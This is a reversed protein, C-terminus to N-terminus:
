FRFTCSFIIGPIFLAMFGLLFLVFMLISLFLYPAWFKVGWKWATTTSMTEGDIKAAMYCIVGVSYIPYALMMAGYSVSHIWIGSDETIVFHEYLVDFLEVPIAIPLIIASLAMVNNKFFYLSETLCQRLM